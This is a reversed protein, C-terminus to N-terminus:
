SPFTLNFQLFLKFSGTRDIITELCVKYWRAKLGCKCWEKMRLFHYIKFYILYFDCNHFLIWFCNFHLWLWKIMHSFRSSIRRLYILRHFRFSLENISMVRWWVNFLIVYRQHIMMRWWVKLGYSTLNWRGGETSYSDVNCIVNFKMRLNM